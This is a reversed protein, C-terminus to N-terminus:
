HINLSLSTEKLTQQLVVHVILAVQGLHKTLSMRGGPIKEWFHLLNIASIWSQHRHGSEARASDCPEVGDDFAKAGILPGDDPVYDRMSSRTAPDEVVKCLRGREAAGKTKQWRGNSESKLRSIRMGPQSTFVLILSRFVLQKYYSGVPCFSTQRM